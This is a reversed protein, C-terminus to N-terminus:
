SVPVIAPAELDNLLDARTGLSFFPNKGRVEESAGLVHEKGAAETTQKKALRSAYTKFYSFYVKSM